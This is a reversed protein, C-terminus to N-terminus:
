TAIYPGPRHGRSEAAAHARHLVDITHKASTEETLPTLTRASYLYSAPRGSKDLCFIVGVSRGRAIQECYSKYLTCEGNGEPMDFRKLSM